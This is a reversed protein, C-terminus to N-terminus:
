GHPFSPVELAAVPPDITNLKKVALNMLSFFFQSAAVLLLGANSAVIESAQSLLEKWRTNVVRLGSTSVSPLPTPVFSSTAFDAVDPTRAVYTTRSTM